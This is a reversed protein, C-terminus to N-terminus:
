GRIEKRNGCKTPRYFNKAAIQQGEDSYLYNLYESAVERTGRKDVVKDVVSM